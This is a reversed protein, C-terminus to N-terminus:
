VLGIILISYNSCSFRMASFDRNFQTGSGPTRGDGDHGVDGGGGGRHRRRHDRHQQHLVRGRLDGRAAAALLCSQISM